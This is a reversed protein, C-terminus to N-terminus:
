VEMKGANIVFEIFIYHLKNCFKQPNPRNVEKKKKFKDFIGM